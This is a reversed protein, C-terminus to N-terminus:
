NQSNSFLQFNIVDKHGVLLSLDVQRSSHSEFWRGEAGFAGFCWWQSVVGRFM